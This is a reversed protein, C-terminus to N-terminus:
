PQKGQRALAATVLSQVEAPATPKATISAALAKPVLMVELGLQDALTMLTSLRPDNKGALLGRITVATLGTNRSMDIIPMALQDKAERLTSSLESLTKM